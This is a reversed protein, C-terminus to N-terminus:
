WELNPMMSKFENYYPHDMEGSEVKEKIKYYELWVKDRWDSFLKAEKAWTKNSSSRYTLLDMDSDYDKEEAKENLFRQTYARLDDKIEPKQLFHGEPVVVGAEKITFEQGEANYYKTGRLDPVIRWAKNRYIATYGSECKPPAERTSNPPMLYEGENMPDRQAITEGTYVGSNPDYSFVTLTNFLYM